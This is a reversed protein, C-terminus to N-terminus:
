VSGRRRRHAGRARRRAADPVRRRVADRVALMGRVREPSQSPCTPPSSASAAASLSRATGCRCLRRGEGGRCRCAGGAGHRAARAGARQTTFVDGPLSSVAQALREPTLDGALTPEGSQYMTGELRMEGLMMEPHRAFYENVSVPGDPTEVPALDCGHTTAARHMGPARKQLFLIDTTVETGANAKFATNPLRIAGVLDAREALYRRITADQKDMTYRSTILAM